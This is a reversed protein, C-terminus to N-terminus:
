YGPGYKGSWEGPWREGNAQVKGWLEGINHGVDQWYGKEWPNAGHHYQYGTPAAGLSHGTSVDMKPSPAATSPPPPASPLPASFSRLEKKFDALAQTTQVLQTDFGKLNRATTDLGPLPPPPLNRISSRANARLVDNAFGIQQRHQRM